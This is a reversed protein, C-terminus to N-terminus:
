ILFGFKQYINVRDMHAIYQRFKQYWLKFFPDVFVPTSSGFEIIDKHELM